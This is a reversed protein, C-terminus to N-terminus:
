ATELGKTIRSSLVTNPIEGNVTNVGNLTSRYSILRAIWKEFEEISNKNKAWNCFKCCTVANENTYPLKSDKRDIGNYKIQCHMNHKFENSPDSNCYFCKNFILKEFDEQTISISIKRKDAGAKFRTFLLNKLGQCNPLKNRKGTASRSKLAECGVIIYLKVYVMNDRLAQATPM